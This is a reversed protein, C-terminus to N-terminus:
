RPGDKKSFSITFHTGEDTTVSMTGQLQEVILRVLQLGMSTASQPDVNEPLGIGDDSVDLNCEDDACRFSIAITGKRNKPYAHKLSNTILENLILGCPVAQGITLSETHLDTKLHIQEAPVSYFAFLDKSMKKAYAAFEIRALDPSGYLMEHIRAITRIRNEMEGIIARAKSDALGRLHGAQLGLLSAIVQLNNKIRHHIEKLLVEKDRLATRIQEESERRETTDRMIKAFGRLEGTEDRIATLVGSAFFCSGDKRVHWREDEARGMRRAADMEAVAAGQARDEPTFIVVGPQGIIERESYGLLREAGSNWATVGGNADMQFLAYDKVSDVFLRFREESQKLAEAAHVRDTVDRINLQIVPRSGDLYRNALLDLYLEEGSRTVLAVGDQRVVESQGFEALLSRRLSTAAFPKAEFLKRGIFGERPYGTLAVLHPNVDRITGTELDLIAIADKAAEFLRRYRREAEERRKTVDEIALLVARPEHDQRPIRRANLRMARRGLHPFELDVEFDHFSTNRFLADGLLERLRPINWQGGGLDYIFRGLTEERSVQFTEYFSETARQVRLDADLVVLPERVTEIMADAYDRSQEASKLSQKLPDIDVLTLVAGDIRNDLTRYPRIALSHWRGSEDQLEREAPSLTELVNGVMEELKPIVLPGTLHAVRRGIDAATFGMLKETAANFRRLRLGRDVMLIPINVATLSNNLDSNVADLEQNRHQLEENVTTLEENASQLEQKTTSLEENTSQLEENSSRIEENAARLEETSAEHDEKLNRLYERTEALTQRLSKIQPEADAPYELGDEAALSPHREFDGGERGNKEEFVVLFYRESPGAGAIPTIDLNINRVEEGHQLQIGEERQSIGQRAATEIGRRLPLVLGERAMRLLNLSAEGPSPDLYFSTHGRFQLIQLEPDVLVAAPAYKSQIIRDAKHQLDDASLPPRTKPLNVADAASRPGYVDFSFRSVGPKRSYIRHLADRPEFLEPATAATEASGLFLFGKPNLSYHFMPLVRKQLVSDMYILVNRCSILDTHGFPPDQTLDQRAFVCLDRIPKVIRYAGDVRFFFRKLREPSVDQTISETYVGARARELAVDSIDTGFLQFTVSTGLREQIELLLIALSYVEEGTACGAVWVRFPEASQWSRLVGSLRESLALYAPPDRFFNTVSILLDRYLERIEAPHKDLYRAYAAMSQAQQVIMRRGIRRRITNQKYRSFDVKTSSQLLAFIRKLEGDGEPLVEAGREPEQPPVVYPHQSLIVLQRAIETPAMVFDVAGTAVASRPMGTHKASEEDQAFTIGCEGKIARIGRSGDSANGSLVIAIARGGQAAALSEFFTDIPLHLGPERRTLHLKCKALVLDKNPPIIYVTNRKVEMLDRAVVVPMQTAPTLLEQLQSEHHPDLHQVLVYAMGTDPPLASLLQKFAELGGASAGIGVVPFALGRPPSIDESTIHEPDASEPAIISDIQQGTKEEANAELEDLPEM